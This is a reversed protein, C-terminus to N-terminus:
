FLKINLRFNLFPLWKIDSFANNLVDENHQDNTPEFAKDAEITAKLPGMYAAGLDFGFGLRRNPIARGFGIGAMPLWEQGKLNFNLTGLQDPSFIIKGYSQSDQSIANITFQNNSHIAGALFHFSSHVSPYLNFIISTYNNKNTVTLDVAQGDFSTSLKGSANMMSYGVSLEIKKSLKVNIAGGFGTSGANASIGLHRKPLSDTTNQAYLSGCFCILFFLLLKNKTM